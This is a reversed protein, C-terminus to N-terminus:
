RVSPGPEQMGDMDAMEFAIDQNVDTVLNDTSSEKHLKETSIELNLCEKLESVVASMTPRRSSTHETCSCAVETVKWVSNIDYKNQMKPDVISEIDGGSLKQRVWQTLDGRGVIIPPQGTIIELLVVGFSYVDSKASLQNYLYYGPDVYGPTGVILSSFTSTDCDFVRSLGFDAIKADLNASLLINSTKVDRHILPPDCAKHLYELGLASQYAIRLRQKWTLPRTDDAKLKQQLSGEQMYEYVLAMCNGDICYGILKVLNKHHVRALNRAEALFEKVGQTSLHSRMKVAVQFQSELLGFYVCGFGGIGINNKFSNTIRKLDNYSFQRNDINPFVQEAAELQPSIPAAWRNYNGYLNRKKRLWLVTAIVVAIVLLPVVVAISTIINKKSSSPVPPPVPNIDGYRVGLVNFILIGISFVKYRKHFVYLYTLATLQDLTSPLSGYLNNNSSLDRFFYLFFLFFIVSLATIRTINSNSTCNVGTWRLDTPLCPDGSWGKKIHNEKIVEKIADVDEDYTPVGVPSIIYVEFANLIPPISSSPDGEVSIDYNTYNSLETTFWKSSLRDTLTYNVDETSTHSDISFVRPGTSSTNKIEAFHLILYFRTFKNNSPWNFDIPQQTNKTSAATQMVLSPTDFDQDTQITSNTSIEVTEKLFDNLWWRDYRDDPYRLFSDKSAGLNVRKVLILSQTANAYIRSNLLSLHLSSIFPNGLNKNVLCVQLNDATSNVIIERYILSSSAIVTDWFNVGLYIDFVPQINLKDYNGYYFTARILYKSGPTLSTLSYCNRTGNPFSRVTEFEKLGKFWNGLINISYTESKFGTDLFTEDSVYSLNTEPDTYKYNVPLGCDINLFGNSDLQSRVPVTVASILLLILRWIIM